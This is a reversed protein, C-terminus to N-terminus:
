LQYEVIYTVQAEGGAAVPVAFEVTGAEVKRYEPTSQLIAWDGRLHELVEIVVDKDKHNKLTILVSERYKGEAIRRQELVKREAVLDFARGVTLSVREDVPTHAIRAEGLFLEGQYFRVTGAPLPRGLGGEQSNTFEVKIWVGDRYQGEYTYHRELKVHPASIFAFQKTRGSELTAPRDLTYLHYEFAAEEAFEPAPPAEAALAKLYGRELAPLREPQGAVLRLKANRYSLGTRNAVSVFSKLALEDREEDLQATYSAAWSLGHTLYNLRIPQDGELESSVLWLLTPETTMVPLGPLTFGTPARIIQIEGTREQLIIEGKSALLKGRYVREDERVEIEAGIFQELLAAESLPEYVFEQELVTLGEGEFYVSDPILGEPLDRLSLLAEGPELKVTRPESVLALDGSYITLQVPEEAGGRSQSIVGLGLGLLLLALPFLLLIKRM